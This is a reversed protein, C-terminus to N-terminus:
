KSHKGGGVLMGKLVYVPCRFSYLYRTTPWVPAGTFCEEPSKSHGERPLMRKVYSAHRIAYPWLNATIALNRHSAHALMAQASDSLDQIRRKAVGNQHHAGVGCFPITQGCKKIEERFMRLVFVGNDCHYHKITVGQAKSFREFAHKAEMTEQASTSEQFHVYDLGSFNDVFVTALWYRSKTLKGSIQGVLGPTGSILQDCSVFQGPRMAKNKEKTSDTGKHRWPRRKQKVYLCAPCM